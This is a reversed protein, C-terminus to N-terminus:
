DAYDAAVSYFYNCLTCPMTEGGWDVHEGTGECLECPEPEPPQCVPACYYGDGDYTAGPAGCDECLPARPM